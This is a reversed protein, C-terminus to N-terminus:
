GTFLLTWSLRGPLFAFLGAIVMGGFFMGKMNSAHQKIKKRRAFYIGMPLGVMTWASLGHIWSFGGGNLGHLWFSSIATTGMAIVWSWGAVTHWGRGKPLSFIVLGIIVALIATSFHLQVVPKATLLPELQPAFRPTYDEAGDLILKGIIGYCALAGILLSRCGPRPITFKSRLAVDTKPTTM